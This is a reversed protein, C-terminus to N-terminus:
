DSVNTKYDGDNKGVWKAEILIQSLTEMRDDLVDPLNFFFIFGDGVPSGAWASNHVCHMRLLSGCSHVDCCRSSPYCINAMINVSSPSLALHIPNLVPLGRLSFILGHLYVTQCRLFLLRPVPRVAQIEAVQWLLRLAGLSTPAWQETELKSLADKLNKKTFAFAGLASYHKNSLCISYCLPNASM